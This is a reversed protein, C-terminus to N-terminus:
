YTYGGFRVKPRRSGYEYVYNSEKMISAEIENIRAKAASLRAQKAEERKRKRYDRLYQLNSENIRKKNKQYWEAQYKKRLAKKDIDSGVIKEDHKPSISM